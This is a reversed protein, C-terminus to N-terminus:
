IGCFNSVIRRLQNGSVAILRQLMLKPAIDLPAMYQVMRFDGLQEQCVAMGPYESVCPLTHPPVMGPNDYNSRCVPILTSLELSWQVHIYSQVYTCVYTKKHVYTYAIMCSHM